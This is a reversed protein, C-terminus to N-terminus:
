YWMNSLWTNWSLAVPFYSLSAAIILVIAQLEFYSPLRKSCSCHTNHKLESYSPLLEYYSRTKIWSWTAPFYSLTVVTHTMIWCSCSCHTKNLSLTASFYSLTVVIHTMIWSLTAPFYNLAVVIHTKNLSLTAPFYSLTVVIHTM